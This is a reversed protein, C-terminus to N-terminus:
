ERAARSPERVVLTMGVLVVGCGVVEWATVPEGFVGSGVAIGVLPLLYAVSNARVPGVRHHLAYYTFYGVLSSLAVLAGLALWVGERAPLAEPVPLVAAATGLLVGGVAFQSGIQWLGQPGGGLRRLLVTGFAASVFAGVIFLPGEWGGVPGGTLTPAVLIVAGVFGVGIGTLSRAGLRELPLLFHAVLVTLIPATTSLVAAYGGVTYQEGWYLFGGYLGIVLIGGVVASVAVDRGRPLRERRVLAIAGFGGASLLYRVSAFVLPSAGLVIGQRIFVYAVGWVGGLLALLALDASSYGARASASPPELNRATGRTGRHLPSSNQAPAPM